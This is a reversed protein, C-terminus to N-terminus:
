RQGNLPLSSPLNKYQNLTKQTTDILGKMQDVYPQLFYFAGISVGIIIIWYVVRLFSTWKQGRRITHLMKNNDEALTFTDQLLKKSEPDM